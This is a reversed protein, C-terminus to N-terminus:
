KLRSGKVRVRCGDVGWVGFGAGQVGVRVGLCRVGFGLGQVMCQFGRIGVGLGPIIKQPPPTAFRLSQVRCGSGRVLCRRKSPPPVPRIWMM